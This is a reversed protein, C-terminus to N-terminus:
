GAQNVRAVSGAGPRRRSSAQLGPFAPALLQFRGIDLVSEALCLQASWEKPKRPVQSVWILNQSVTVDDSILASANRGQADSILAEPNSSMPSAFVVKLDPNRAAIGEIVQQLLVGRTADGIKHAEDVVLADVHLNPDAAM